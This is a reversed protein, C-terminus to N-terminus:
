PQRLMYYQMANTPSSNTYVYNGSGAPSEVANGVVPWTAVPATLDNTAVVSFSLGTANTFAFTFKSGNFVSGGLTSQIPAPIGFAPSSTVSLAGSTFSIAAGSVSNTSFATLGAYTATGASTGLTKTGGLTWNVPSPLVAAATINVNNTVTNGFQDKVVVIPQNGLLGGDAAPATPQKTIILQSATGSVLTQAVSNTSYGTASIVITKSGTSQLLSSQSPDFVLKGAVTTNYAAPPLTTGNVTIGTIASRWAPDDPSNTINFSSSVNAVNQPLLVPPPILETANATQQPVFVLGKISTTGSATYIVNSSTVNMPQNWASADTIRVISNGATGGGGTTYYLYVSGSGNTTAFLGDAGTSNTFAGNTAWSFGSVQSSDPVWSFKRIIGQSSSVQELIYLIDFTTGNTSIMYFDTAVPDTALNNPVAVDYVDTVPDNALAYVVPIPSGSATKQTEVYPVGGFTRVVVNNLVNINPNQVTGHGYYLGGKDDVIWNLDDLTCAARAQSGGLSISNYNMPSTFGNTYNLTGVARSLVFTEDPSASSGDAFGAFCLLTGDDSLALRGASGASTMRLANTGTASIPVINVPTTQKSASPKVEVMSFTTNNAVTDIQLAALNGRTFPVPPAGIKFSASNTVTVQGAGGFGNVTLTIVAGSVASSGNVTASLNTFVMFGNTAAQVTAGGLTWGGSGGVTATVFVNTNPAAATGNGYQDTIALSPNATLTGGSASPSAPQATLSLKTAVGASLPQSVKANSYNTAFIIISKLGSSQLLVSKAPTFIIEGPNSADYASNTLLTGNVYISSINARWAPVDTFTNTFPGDVTANPDYSVAPAASGNFTGLVSVNDYRWNGSSNNYSGGNFAVCDNNQAANVIRFAFQPNNAVGPVGTFDVIFNNYFNQGINQYFYTGTVTDPSYTPSSPSNTVIFTPNAAYYLNGANNTTAWGDTTYEVCMKAEGQSTSFMDFSVLIDDYNVTSVSFQAGQSGIPAATNWGNHGKDPGGAGRVRWVNQGSSGSSSFPIGNALTDPANTSGVSGDSYHYSNDFGLAIATGTGFEPAPSPVFAATGESEFTWETVTDFSVGQIVVNDFAWNGSTSNYLAGTTDVCNSGTSANVMRIAFNPNNDVGSVGSLDVVIQNNWGTAGNNTLIVYSGIVTGNTATNNTIVGLTGVSTITANNWISGETTYQVMLNAEADPTANVDFSVKIKYFGATSAGFKAGQSGIPANTSWGNGANPAAGSGRVRWSLPGAPDTSSGPLSLVDPNSISNTGNFSNGLGLASAVGFGSSPSPAANNTIALNDFTWATITTQARVGTSLLAIAGLTFLTKKMKKPQQYNGPL